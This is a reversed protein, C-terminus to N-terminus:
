SPLVQNPQAEESLRPPSHAVSQAEDDQLDLIQQPNENDIAAVETM